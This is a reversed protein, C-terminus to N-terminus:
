LPSLRDFGQVLTRLQAVRPDAAPVGAPAVPWDLWATRDPEKVLGELAYIHLAEVRIGAARAAGMDALLDAASQSGVDGVVGLDVAAM